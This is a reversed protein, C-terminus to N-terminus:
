SKFCFLAAAIRGFIYILLGNSSRVKSATQIDTKRILWNFFSEIPQRIKSVARSFLDNFAKDRQKLCEAQGKVAKVPTLMISNKSQFLDDFYKKDLYIKDGWFTRNRINSWYEKFVNLDNESAPTIVVSEPFPISGPNQFALLHLKLGYYYLNKTSCFGKDVLETAVKAKRKGSCTIIPMSDLLSFSTNCNQPIKTHSWIEAIRQFVASLKNLRTNFAVYSPLKPFWSRLYRSSFNYIQKISFREEQTMAYIYITILETDAFEPSNNNSFRQCYQFLESDYLDSISLFIDTLVLAQNDTM